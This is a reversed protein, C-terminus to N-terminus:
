FVSVSTLLCYLMTQQVGFDKLGNGEKCLWLYNLYEPIEM